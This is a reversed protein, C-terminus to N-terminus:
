PNVGPLNKREEREIYEGGLEEIILDLNGLLGELAHRLERGKDHLDSYEVSLKRRYKEALGRKKSVKGGSKKTAM